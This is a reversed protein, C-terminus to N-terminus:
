YKDNDEEINKTTTTTPTPLQRWQQWTFSHKENTAIDRIIKM